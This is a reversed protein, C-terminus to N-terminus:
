RSDSGGTVSVSMGAQADNDGTRGYCSPTESAIGNATLDRIRLPCTIAESPVEEHGEIEFTEEPEAGCDSAEPLHVAGTPPVGLADEAGM